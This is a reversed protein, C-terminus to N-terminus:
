LSATAKEILVDKGSLTAHRECVQFVEHMELLSTCFPTCWFIYRADAQTVQKLVDDDTWQGPKCVRFGPHKKHHTYGTAV